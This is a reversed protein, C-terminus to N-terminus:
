TSPARAVPSSTVDAQLGIVQSGSVRPDIEQAVAGIAPNVDVAAVSAGAAALTEAIARGIGQHAGTVFATKGDLSAHRM